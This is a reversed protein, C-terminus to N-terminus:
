NQIKLPGLSINLPGLFYDEFMFILIKYIKTSISCGLGNHLRAAWDSMPGIYVDM